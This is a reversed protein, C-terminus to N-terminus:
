VDSCGGSFRSSAVTGPLGYTTDVSKDAQFMALM